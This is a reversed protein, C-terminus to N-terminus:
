ASVAGQGSLQTKRRTEMVIPTRNTFLDLVPCHADVVRKLQELDEDSALSDFVVTGRISQFGPRVGPAASFLGRLDLEGELTVSIDRLPIGLADAYLRYTTAQCSALAALAYEVPNPAEDNGGMGEAEDVHVSFGRVNVKCRLGRGSRSSVLYKAAAREPASALQAQRTVFIPKFSEVM